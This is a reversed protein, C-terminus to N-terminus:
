DWQLTFTSWMSMPPYPTKLRECMTAPGLGALYEDRAVQQKESKWNLGLKLILHKHAMDLDAKARRRDAIAALINQSVTSSNRGCFALFASYLQHNGLMDSPAGLQGLQFRLFSTITSDDQVATRILYSLTTDSALEQALLQWYQAQKDTMHHHPPQYPSTSTSTCTHFVLIEGLQFSVIKAIFNSSTEVHKCLGHKFKQIVVSVFLM